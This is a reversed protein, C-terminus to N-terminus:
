LQTERRDSSPQLDKLPFGEVNVPRMNSKRYLVAFPSWSLSRAITWLSAKRNAQISKRKKWVTPLQKAGDMWGKAYPQLTGQFLARIFFLISFGLYLPAAIFLLLSPMNKILTWQRNRIGHFITFDSYRGTIASGEHHVRAKYVLVARGGYLQHRFGFDVDEHYCFFDEDLGGHTLFTERHFLAAA